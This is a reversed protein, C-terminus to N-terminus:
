RWWEPANKPSNLSDDDHTDSYLDFNEPDAGDYPVGNLHSTKDSHHSTQFWSYSRCAHTTAGFILGQVIAADRWGGIIDRKPGMNTANWRTHKSDWLDFNDDIHM